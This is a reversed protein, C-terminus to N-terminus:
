PRPKFHLDGLRLWTGLASKKLADPLVWPGVAGTEVCISRTGSRRLYNQTKRYASTMAQPRDITDPKGRGVYYWPYDALWGPVIVDSEDRTGCFAVKFDFAPGGYRQDIAFFRRGDKTNIETVSLPYTTWLDSVVFLRPGFIDAEVAAHVDSVSNFVPPDASPGQDLFFQAAFQEILFKVFVHTDDHTMFFQLEAMDTRGDIPWRLKAM